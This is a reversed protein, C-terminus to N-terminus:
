LLRAEPLDAPPTAEDDPRDAIWIVLRAPLRVAQFLLWGTGLIAGFACFLPWCFAVFAGNAAEESDPDAIEYWSGFGLGGAVLYGVIAWIQWTM